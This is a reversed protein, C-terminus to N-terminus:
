LSVIGKHEQLVPIFLAIKCDLRLVSLIRGIQTNILFFYLLHQNIEHHVGPMRDSFIAPDMNSGFIVRGTLADAYYDRVIAVTNFGFVEFTNKVGKKGGLGGTFAGPQAKRHAIANDFAVATVNFHHARRAPTSRKRYVQWYILWIVFWLPKAL